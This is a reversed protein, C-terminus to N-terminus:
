GCGGRHVPLIAELGPWTPGDLAGETEEEEDEDDEVLDEEDPDAAGDQRHKQRSSTKKKKKAPRGETQVLEAVVPDVLVAQLTRKASQIELVRNYAYVDHCVPFVFSHASLGGGYPGGGRVYASRVRSSNLLDVGAAGVWSEDREEEPGEMRPSPTTTPPFQDSALDTSTPLVGSNRIKPVLPEDWFEDGVKRRRKGITPLIQLSSSSATAASPLPPPHPRLSRLPFSPPPLMQPQAVAAASDSSFTIHQADLAADVLNSVYRATLTALVKSTSPLVAHPPVDGSGHLILPMDQALKAVVDDFAVDIEKRNSESM